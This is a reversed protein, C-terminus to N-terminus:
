IKTCVVLLTLVACLSVFLGIALVTVALRLDKKRPLDMGAELNMIYEKAAKSAAKNESFGKGARLFLLAREFYESDPNNIEIIQKNVGKVM